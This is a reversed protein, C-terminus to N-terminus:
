RIRRRTIRGRGWRRPAAPMMPPHRDGRRASGSGPRHSAAQVGRPAPAQAQCLAPAGRRAAHRPPRHRPPFRGRGVRDQPQFFFLAVEVPITAAVEPVTKKLWEDLAARLEAVEQAPKGLGEATFGQGYFRRLSIRGKWKDTAADYRVPGEYRKAKIAILGKPTLLLHPVTGMHNFLLHRQDLRQFAENLLPEPLPPRVWRNVYYSGVAAVVVGGVLVPWALFSVNSLFILVLSLSMLLLGAMSFRFGLKQNKEVIATNTFTKM